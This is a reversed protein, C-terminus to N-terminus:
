FELMAHSCGPRAPKTCGEKQISNYYSGPRCWSLDLYPHRNARNPARNPETQSNAHAAHHGSVSAPQGRNSVRNSETQRPKARRARNRSSVSRCQAHNPDGPRRPPIRSTRVIWPPERVGVHTLHRLRTFLIVKFKFQNTKHLYCSM